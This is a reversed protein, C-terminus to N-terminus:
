GRRERLAQDVAPDGLKGLWELLGPYANPHRAVYPRAAPASAALEALTAAPTAPDAALRISEPVDAPPASANPTSPGPQTPLPAPWPQPQATQWPRPPLTATPGSTVPRGSSARLGAAAVMVVLAMPVVLALVLDLYSILFDGSAVALNILGLLFLGAAVGYAVGAASPQNQALASRVIIAGMAYLVTLVLVAVLAGRSYSQTIGLILLGVQVACALLAVTLLRVAARVWRDRPAQERMARRVSPSAAAAAVAPWLVYGFAIRHFSEVPLEHLRGGDALILLLAAAGGLTLLVLRWSGNRVLTGIVPLVVLVLVGAVLLLGAILERVEITDRRDVVTIVLSAIAGAIIIAGLGAVVWYWLGGRRRAGDPGLEGERPQAALIAGALGVGLAVGIGGGTDRYGGNLIDIVLYVAVLVFYPANALLRVWRVGGATWGQGLAGMRAMYPVALSFVSVITILVVDIRDVAVNAYDWRLGLSILLLLAAVVDRLYDGATLGAFSIQPRPAAPAVPGAPAAPYAATPYVSTRAPATGSPAAYAATPAESAAPAASAPAPTPEPAPVAAESATTRPAEAPRSTADAKRRTRPQRKDDSM